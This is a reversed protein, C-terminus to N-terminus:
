FNRNKGDRIGKMIRQKLRRLIIHRKRAVRLKDQWVSQWQDNLWNVDRENTIQQKGQYKLSADAIKGQRFVLYWVIFQSQGGQLQCADTASQYQTLDGGYFRVICQV